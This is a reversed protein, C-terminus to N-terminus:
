HNTRGASVDVITEIFLLLVEEESFAQQLIWVDRSAQRVRGSDFHGTTLISTQLGPFFALSHASVVSTHAAFWYLSLL